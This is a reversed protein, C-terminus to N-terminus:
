GSQREVTVAPPQPQQPSQPPQVPQAPQTPQLAVNPSAMEPDVELLPFTPGNLLTIGEDATTVGPDYPGPKFKWWAAVYPYSGVQTYRFQSGGTSRYHFYQGFAIWFHNKANNPITYWQTGPTASGSICFDISYGSINRLYVTIGPTQAYLYNVQSLMVPILFFIISNFLIKRPM